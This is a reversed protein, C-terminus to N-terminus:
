APQISLAWVWIGMRVLIQLNKRQVTIPTRYIFM